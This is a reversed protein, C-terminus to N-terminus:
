PATPLALEARVASWYQTAFSRWDYHCSRLVREIRMQRKRFAARMLVLSPHLDQCQLFSAARIRLRPIRENLISEIMARYGKTSVASGTMLDDPRVGFRDLMERPFHCLGAGLDEGLDRLNNYYQDIAGFAGAARWCARPVFPMTRIISGMLRELMEEYEALSDIPGTRAIHEATAEIYTNWAIRSLENVEGGFEASGTCKLIDRVIPHISGNSTAGARVQRWSNLFQQFERQDNSSATAESLRDIVRVTRIRLLWDSLEHAPTELLWATSDIDKLSDDSLGGAGASHFQRALRELRQAIPHVRTDISRVKPAAAADCVVTPLCICQEKATGRGCLCAM